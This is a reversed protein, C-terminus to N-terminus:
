NIRQFQCISYESEAVREKHLLLLIRKIFDNMTEVPSADVVDVDEIRPAGGMLIKYGEIFNLGPDNFFGKRASPGAVVVVRHKLFLIM